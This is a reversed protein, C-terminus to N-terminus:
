CSSIREIKIYKGSKIGNDKPKKASDPIIWSHGILQAGEIRGTKCLFNVRRSSIGWIKSVDKISLLKM